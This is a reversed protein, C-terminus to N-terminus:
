RAYHFAHLFFYSVLFSNTYAIQTDKNKYRAIHMGGEFPDLPTVVQVEKCNYFYVFVRTSM